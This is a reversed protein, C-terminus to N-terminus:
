SRNLSLGKRFEEPSILGDKVKKFLNIRLELDSDIMVLYNRIERFDGKEFYRQNFKILSKIYNARKEKEEKDYKVNKDLLDWFYLYEYVFRCSENSLTFDKISPSENQQFFDQIRAIYSLRKALEGIGLNKIKAGFRGRKKDQIMQLESIVINILELSIERPKCHESRFWEVLGPNDRVEETEIGQDTFWDGEDENDIIELAEETSLETKNLGLKEFEKLFVDRLQNFLEFDAIKINDTPDGVSLVMKQYRTTKNSLLLRLIKAIKLKHPILNKDNDDSQEKHKTAINRIEFWIIQYKIFLDTYSQLGYKVLIDRFDERNINIDVDEDTVFGFVDEMCLLFIEKASPNKFDVDKM